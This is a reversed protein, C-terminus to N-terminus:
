VTDPQMILTLRAKSVIKEDLKEDLYGLFSKSAKPNSIKRPGPM